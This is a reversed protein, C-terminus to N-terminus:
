AAGKVIIGDIADDALGGAYVINSDEVCAAIANFRDNAPMSLGIDLPSVFWSNGGDITRLIRGAPTATDHSMYGVSNNSFKIDRVVGAGSGPFTKLTWNVGADLTFFLRGDATGILWENVGKMWVTNLTVGVAPGTISTWTDGGDRTVMVTNSVGVAVVDEISVAHVDLLNNVTVDGPSQVLVSQTPDATFYIYGNEGVIWTFNAAESHIALPGNGAVFGTTVETWVESANLIDAIPAYHISESDESIVVVNAGVCALDDPDENAALTTILTDLWVTGGDQTFVLEAPLGPSGGATLTVAFVVECGESPLGCEGCTAADCIVIGVVEQVVQAAAQAQFALPRIWYIREGTFPMDEESMTRQDPSLAGLGNLDWNTPIAKELVLISTWGANFDQPNKCIGMHIQVDHACGNRMYKEYATRQDLELRWQLSMNPLGREGKVTGAILFKDYRDPDPIYIPTLDGGPVNATDVRALGEYEPVRNPAAGFQTLWVRSFSSQQPTTVM